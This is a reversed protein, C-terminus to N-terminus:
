KLLNELRARHTDDVGSLIQQAFSRRLNNRYAEAVTQEIERNKALNLRHEHLDVKAMVWRLEFQAQPEIKVDDDVVVVYAVKVQNAAEVIVLDGAVLPFHTVYSYEKQVLQGGEGVSGPANFVVKITRSDNRLLAAINKEM